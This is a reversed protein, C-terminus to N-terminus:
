KIVESAKLSIRIMALESKVNQDGMPKNYRTSMGEDLNKHLGYSTVITEFRGKPESM